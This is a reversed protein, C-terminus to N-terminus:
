ENFFKLFFEFIFEFFIKLSFIKFFNLVNKRQDNPPPPNKQSFKKFIFSGERPPPPENKVSCVNAYSTVEQVIGVLQFDCPFHRNSAMKYFYKINNWNSQFLQILTQINIGDDILSNSIWLMAFTNILIIALEFQYRVDLAQKWVQFQFAYGVNSESDEMVAFPSDNEFWYEKLQKFIKTKIKLVNSIMKFSFNIGCIKFAKSIIGDVGPAHYTQEEIVKYWVSKRLFIERQYPGNYMNSIISDLMPNQLIEIIDLFAIMDIVQIGSYNRDTLMDEVESINSSSEIVANAIDWLTSRFRKAKFILNQHKACIHLSINLLMLVIRLPNSWYVLFNEKPEDMIQNHLVTLFNLDWRTSLIAWLNKRFIFLREELFMLQYVSTSDLRFSDIIAKICIYKNGYVDDEYKKFLYFSIHLKNIIISYSFADSVIEDIDYFNDDDMRGM